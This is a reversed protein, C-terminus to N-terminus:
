GSSEEDYEVKGQEPDESGSQSSSTPSLHRRLQPLKPLKPLEPLEPIKPLKPLEPLLSRTSGEGYSPQQIQALKQIGKLIPTIFVAITFTIIFLGIISVVFGRLGMSPIIVNQESPIAFIASILGIPLYGITLYTLKQITSNQLISNQSDQLSLVTSLSDKYRSNLKIKQDLEENLVLLHSSKREFDSLSRQCMTELAENRNGLGYDIQARLENSAEEIRRM